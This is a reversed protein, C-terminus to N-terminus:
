RYAVKMLQANFNIVVIRDCHLDFTLFADPTAGSNDGRFNSRRVADQAAEYFENKSKNCKMTSLLLGRIDKFIILHFVM